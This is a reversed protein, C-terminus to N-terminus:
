AGEEINQPIPTSISLTRFYVEAENIDTFGPNGQKTPNGKTYLIVQGNLSITLNGNELSLTFTGRGEITIDMDIDKTTINSNLFLILAQAGM